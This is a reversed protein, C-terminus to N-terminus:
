KQSLLQYSISYYTSQVHIDSNLATRWFHLGRKMMNMHHISRRSPPLNYSANHQVYFLSKSEYGSLHDERKITRAMADNREPTELVRQSLRDVRFIASFVPHNARSSAAKQVGQVSEAYADHRAFRIRPLLLKGEKRQSPHQLPDILFIDEDEDLFPKWPGNRNIRISGQM